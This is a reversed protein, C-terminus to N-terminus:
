FFQKLKGFNKGLIAPAVPIRNKSLARIDEKTKKIISRLDRNSAGGTQMSILVKPVYTMSLNHTWLYRLMSDYDAAIDFSLDFGGYREYRERRLYFTPHPPMWGMALKSRKYQGSRWHRVVRSPDNKSIYELDAYVADTEDSDFARVFDSIAQNTKFQDDSHLFGIVDGQALRIGKNLADYIGADPESIIRTQDLKYKEVIELTRDTSDGDIVIHEIDKYDQSSISKMSRLVTSESNFTATVITVKMM